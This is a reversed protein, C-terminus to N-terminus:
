TRQVDVQDALEFADVRQQARQGVRHQLGSTGNLWAQAIQVSWRAAQRGAHVSRTRVYTPPCAWWRARHADGAAGRRPILMPAMVTGRLRPVAARREPAAKNHALLAMTPRRTCSMIEGKAKFKTRQSSTNRSSSGRAQRTSRLSLTSHCCQREYATSPSSPM